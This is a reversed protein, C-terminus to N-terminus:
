RVIPVDSLRTTYRPSRMEAKTESARHFGQTGVVLRDKGFRDNVADLAQMLRSDRKAGHDWLLQPAEEPKLLDDLVVGAKTYGHRNGSRNGKWAAQACRNVAQVLDFTNSTMPKLQVTRSASHQPASKSFPNTHYFATIQGAVLGHQRLKEAARTAHATLAQLAADLSRMPEGASRTVAMGKRQPAVEEIELCRIGQLEAVARELVVSGLQRALQRPIDRLAAVTTVGATILKAQTQRGVGWVEGVPIRELCWARVHPQMFDCVGGFIPNKKATYNALKALTKTPGIGICTPIGTHQRVTARMDVAIAEYRSDFGSLDIFNEDISYVEVVPSFQSVCDLIRRQFDGYLSYNSSLVRVGHEKVLNRIQFLPVGMKIGLSKAEESRAVACGDNNSLIIVPKGILSADFVRECSCYFNNGDQLAIPEPM